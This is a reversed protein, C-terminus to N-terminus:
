AFRGLLKRLASELAGTARSQGPSSSMYPQREQQVGSYFAQPEGFPGVFMQMVDSDAGKIERSARISGRLRGTDVPATSRGHAIIRRGAERMAWMMARRSGTEMDGKASDWQGRDFDISFEFLGGSM